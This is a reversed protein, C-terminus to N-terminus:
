WFARFVMHTPGGLCYYIAKADDPVKRGDLEDFSIAIIENEKRKSGDAKITREQYFATIKSNLPIESATVPKKSGNTRPVDCGVKFRGQFNQTKTGKTFTLTILDSETHTVTGSFIDGRYGPPYYSNPALGHQACSVAAFFVLSGIIIVPRMKMEAIDEM